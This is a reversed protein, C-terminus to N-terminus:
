LIPGRWTPHPTKQAKVRAEAVKDAHFLPAIHRDVRRIIPGYTKSWHDPHIKNRESILRYYFSFLRWLDDEFVMMNPCKFCALFKKCVGEIEEAVTNDARTPNKGRMPNRCRAIGTNYGGDLLHQLNAPFQGDAAIMIKGDVKIASFRQEMSELVLNHDRESELDRAVYMETTEVYSHGLAKQVKRIDKTKRYLNSAMTPRLRSINLKLPRGRDDILAHRKAFANVCHSANMSNLGVVEDKREGIKMRVLFAYERKDQPAEDMLPATYECLYDFHEAINNPITKIADVELETKDERVSVAHTSHGRRKFFQIFRRDPAAHPLLANRSVEILSTLNIGAALGIIILHIALVQDAELPEGKEHTRKLDANLAATIRDQESISYPLRHNAKSNSNPFPNKPFSLDSHVSAPHRKQRNKLLSKLASYIQRQTGISFLQGMNPGKTAIQTGLWAIYIRMVTVDIQDLRTIVPDTSTVHLLFDFFYEIGVFYNKLTKGESENRLNWVADRLHGALAERGDACFPTFDFKCAGHNPCHITFTWGPPMDVVRNGEMTLNVKRDLKARKIRSGGDKSTFKTAMACSEAFIRRIGTLPM